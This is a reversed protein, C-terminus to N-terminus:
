TSPYSNESPHTTGRLTESPCSSCLRGHATLVFSYAVKMTMKKKMYMMVMMLDWYNLQFLRSLEAFVDFVNPNRRVGALSELSEYAM